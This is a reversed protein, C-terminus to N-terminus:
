LSERISKIIKVQQFMEYQSTQLYTEDGKSNLKKKKFLTHVSLRYIM